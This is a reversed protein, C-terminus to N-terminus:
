GIRIRSVAAIIAGLIAAGLALGAIYLYPGGLADIILQAGDFMSTTDLDISLAPEAEFGAAAANGVSFLLGFLALAMVASFRRYKQVLAVYGRRLPNVKPDQQQEQM